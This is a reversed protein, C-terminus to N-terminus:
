TLSFVYPNSAVLTSFRALHISFMWFNMWFYPRSLFGCGALRLAPVTRLRGDSSTGLAYARQLPRRTPRRADTQTCQHHAFTLITVSCRHGCKLHYHKQQLLPTYQARSSQRSKRGGPRGRCAQASSKAPRQIGPRSCQMRSLFVKGLVLKALDQIVRPYHRWGDM